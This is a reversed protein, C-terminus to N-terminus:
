TRLTRKLLRCPERGTLVSGQERTCAVPTVREDKSPRPNTDQKRVDHPAPTFTLTVSVKGEQKQLEKIFLADGDLGGEDEDRDATGPMDPASEEQHGPPM